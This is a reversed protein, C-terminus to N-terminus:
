PRVKPRRYGPKSSIVMSRSMEMTLFNNKNNTHAVFFTQSHWYVHLLATASSWWGCYYYYNIICTHYHYYYNNNHGKASYIANGRSGHSRCWIADGAKTSILDQTKNAYVCYHQMGYCTNYNNGGIFLLIFM